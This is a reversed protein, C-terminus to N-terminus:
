KNKSTFAEFADLTETSAHHELGESDIEATSESIGLALLFNKVIAHRKKCDRALNKGADTLLINKYPESIILGEKAIRTIIKTATPQSVGMSKALDVMRATGNEEILDAVM